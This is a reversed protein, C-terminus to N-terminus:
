GIKILKTGPLASPSQAVNGMLWLLFSPRFAGTLMEEKIIGPNSGLAEDSDRQVGRIDATGTSVVRTAHHTYGPYHVPCLLSAPIGVRTYRCPLSAVM